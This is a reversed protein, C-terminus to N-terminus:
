RLPGDFIHTLDFFGSLSATLRSVSSSQLESPVDAPQTYVGPAFGGFNHGM